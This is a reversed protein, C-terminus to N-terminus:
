SQNISFRWINWHPDASFLDSVKHLSWPAHGYPTPRPSWQPGPRRTSSPPRRSRNLRRRPRNRHRHRQRHTPHHRRKANGARATRTTTVMTTWPLSRAATPRQLRARRQWRRGRTGIRWPRGTMTRRRRRKAGKTRARGRSRGKGRSQGTSSTRNRGSSRRRGVDARNKGNGPWRRCCCGRAVTRRKRRTRKAWNSSRFGARTSVSRPSTGTTRWTKEGRRRTTVFGFFVIFRFYVNILFFFVIILIVINIIITIIILLRCFNHTNQATYRSSVARCNVTFSLPLVNSKNIIRKVINKQDSEPFIYFSLFSTCVFM